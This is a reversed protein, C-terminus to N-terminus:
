LHEEMQWVPSNPDLLCGIITRKFETAFGEDKRKMEEYIIRIAALTENSIDRATGKAKFRADGNNKINIKIM